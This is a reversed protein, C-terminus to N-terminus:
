ILKVAVVVVGDGGEPSLATVWKRLKWSSFLQDGSNPLPTDIPVFHDGFL